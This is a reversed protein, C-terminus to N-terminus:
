LKTFYVKFTGSEMGLFDGSLELTMQKGDIFVPIETEDNKQILTLTNENVSYEFPNSASDEGRKIIFSGKGDKDFTFLLDMGAKNMDLSTVIGAINMEMKTAEWEGVIAKEPKSCSTLGLLTMIASIIFIRKMSNFIKMNPNIVHNNILTIYLHM